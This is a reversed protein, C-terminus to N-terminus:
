GGLASVRSDLQQLKEIIEQVTISGGGSLTISSGSITISDGVCKLFAAVGLAKFFMDAGTNAPVNAANWVQGMCVGEADDPRCIVMVFDEKKPMRYEGNGAFFPIDSSTDSRDEYTVKVTGKAPDVSSVKGFRIIDGM